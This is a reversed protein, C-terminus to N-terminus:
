LAGLALADDEPNTTLSVNVKEKLLAVIEDNWLSPRYPGVYVDRYGLAVPALLAAVSREDWLGFFFAIPSTEPARDLEKNLGLAFRLTANMDRLRGFDIIRPIGYETPTPEIQTFRFKVDGFTAVISSDLVKGCLELYYNTPEGDDTLTRENVAGSPYDVGGIAFIRKLRGQRYGRASKEVLSPLLEGGFGVPFKTTPKKRSYGGSDFAARIPVDLNLSRDRKREVLKLSEWQFERTAFIYDAFDDSPEDFPTSSVIIAGPFGSLEKNQLSRNTGYHGVLRRYKRLNPYSHAALAEGRTWVNVESFEARELVQALAEFDEGSFVVCTGPLPSTVVSTPVPVGYTYNTAKEFIELVVLELEGVKRMAAVLADPDRSDAKPDFNSKNEPTEQPQSDATTETADQVDATTEVEVPAVQPEPSAVEEANQETAKPSLFALVDVIGNLVSEEKRKWDDVEAEIQVAQAELEEKETKDKRPKLLRARNRLGEAEYARRSRASKMKLTQRLTSAVGKLGALLTERLGYVTAGYEALLSEASAGAGDAVYQALQEADPKPTARIAELVNSEVASAFEPEAKDESLHEVLQLMCDAKLCMTMLEAATATSSACSVELADLFFNDLIASKNGCARMKTAADAIHACWVLLLNRLIAVDKPASNLADFAPEIRTEAM